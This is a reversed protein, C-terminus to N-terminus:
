RRIFDILSSRNDLLQINNAKCNESFYEWKDKSTVSSRFEPGIFLMNTLKGASQISVIQQVIDSLSKNPDPATKVEIVKFM